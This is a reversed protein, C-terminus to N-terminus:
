RAPSLEAAIAAALRAAAEPKSRLWLEPEILELEMLQLQGDNGRVFDVRAYQPHPEVAAAAREAFALEEASPEYPTWKGGHDDQVRFDGARPVKCVAHTAVGGLVMVSREGSVPIDRVFPQYIFAEQSMVPALLAEIERANRANVRHTHRATGGVCPKIVGDSWGSRAILDALSEGSGAEIYISPVIPVGRRELDGLYHKDVNWWVTGVDNVFRLQREARRLWATFEAFREFYDWTTRFVGLRFSSWDVSPDAWDVRQTSFGHAALAESLLRDDYLINRLYWEDPGPERGVYRRESLLAIDASM